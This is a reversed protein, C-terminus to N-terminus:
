PQKATTKRAPASALKDKMTGIGREIELRRAKRHSPLLYQFHSMGWVGAIAAICFCVVSLALFPDPGPGKNQMAYFYWSESMLGSAIAALIVLACNYFQVQREEMPLPEDLKKLEDELQSLRKITRQHSLLSWRDYLKRAYINLIRPLEFAVLLAGLVKFVIEAWHWFKDIAAFALV